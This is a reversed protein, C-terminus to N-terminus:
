YGGIQEFVKFDNTSFKDKTSSRNFFNDFILKQSQKILEEKTSGKFMPLTVEFANDLKFKLTVDKKTKYMQELDDYSKNLSTINEFDDPLINSMLSFGNNKWKDYNLSSILDHNIDNSSYGGHNIIDAFKARGNNEKHVYGTFFKINNSNSTLFLVKDMMTRNNNDNSHNHFKSVLNTIELWKKTDLKRVNRQYWEYDGFIINNIYDRENIVVREFDDSEGNTNKFGQLTFDTKFYLTSQFENYRDKHLRPLKENEGLLKVKQLENEFHKKNDKNLEISFDFCVYFDIDHSKDDRQYNTKRDENEYKIMM